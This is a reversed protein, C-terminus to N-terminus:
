DIQFSSIINYVPVDDNYPHISFVKCKDSVHQIIHMFHVRVHMTLSFNLPREAIHEIDFAYFFAFLLNIYIYKIWRHILDPSQSVITETVPCM